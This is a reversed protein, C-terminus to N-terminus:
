KKIFREIGSNEFDINWSLGGTITEEYKYNPNPAGLNIYRDLNSLIQVDLYINEFVKYQLGAIFYRYINVEMCIDNEYVGANIFLKNNPSYGLMINYIITNSGIGFDENRVRYILSFKKYSSIGALEYLFYKNNSEPMVLGTGGYETERFVVGAGFTLGDIIKKDRLIQFKGAISYNSIRDRLYYNSTMPYSIDYTKKSNINSVGFDIEFWNVFGFRLRLNNPNRVFGYNGYYANYHEVSKFESYGLGYEVQMSGKKLTYPSNMGGIRDTNLFNQSFAASAFLIATIFLLYKKM